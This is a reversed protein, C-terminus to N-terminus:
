CEYIYVYIYVHMSIYTCLRLNSGTTKTQSPTTPFSQTVIQIPICSPVRTCYAPLIRICEDVTTNRDNAKRHSGDECTDYMCVYTYSNTREEFIKRDDTPELTKYFELRRETNETKNSFKIINNAQGIESRKM